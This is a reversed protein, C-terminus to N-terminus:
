QLFMFNNIGKIKFFYVSAKGTTIAKPFKEAIEKCDERTCNAKIFEAYAKGYSANDAPFEKPYQAKLSFSLVCLWFFIIYNRM